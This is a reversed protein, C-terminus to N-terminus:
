SIAASRRWWPRRRGAARAGAPLSTRSTWRGSTPRRGGRGRGAGTELAPAVVGRGADASRKLASRRISRMSRLAVAPGLGERAPRTRGRAARCSSGRRGGPRGLVPGAVLDALQLLRQRERAGVLRDSQALRPGPLTAPRARSIRTSGSSGVCCCRTRRGAHAAADPLGGVGAGGPALQGVLSGFRGIEARTCPPRAVVVHEVGAGALAEVVDVDDVAVADQLRGVAALGPGVSAEVTFSVRKLLM